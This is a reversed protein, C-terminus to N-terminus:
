CFLDVCSVVSSFSIWLRVCRGCALFLRDSGISGISNVSLSSYSLMISVLRDVSDSMWVFWDVIWDVWVALEFVGFMSGKWKMGKSRKASAFAGHREAAASDVM